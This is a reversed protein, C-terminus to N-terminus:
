RALARIMYQLVYSLKDIDKEGDAEKLRSIETTLTFLADRDEQVPVNSKIWGIFCVRRGSTVPTVRHLLGTPYVVVQGANGKVKIIHNSTLLAGRCCCNHNSIGSTLKSQQVASSTRKLKSRECEQYQFKYVGRTM